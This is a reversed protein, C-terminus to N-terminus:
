RGLAEEDNRYNEIQQLVEQLKRTLSEERQALQSEERVQVGLRDELDELSIDGREIELIDRRSQLQV